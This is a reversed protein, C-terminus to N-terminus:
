DWNGCERTQSRKIYEWSHNLNKGAASYASWDHSYIFQDCVCPHPFQSQPRAIGKITVNKEFKRYQTKATHAISCVFPKESFLKGNNRCNTKCVYSLFLKKTCHFVKEILQLSPAALQEQIVPDFSRFVM